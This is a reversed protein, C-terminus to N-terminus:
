SELEGGATTLLERMAGLVHAQADLLSLGEVTCGAAYRHGGGGHSEAFTCVDINGASRLSVKTRMEDVPFFFLGVEVGRIRLLYNVVEFADRPVIGLRRLTARDTSSWALRGACELQLAALSNGLVQLKGLPQACHLERFIKAPEVGTELLSAVMRHVRPTTSEYQFSGTDNVIGVYLPEALERTMAAGMSRLLDWVIECSSSAGEVILAQDFLDNKYRHHDILLKRAPSARVVEEMRGLRKAGGLDTAVITDADMLLRGHLDPDFVHFEGRQWLFRLNQPAASCNIFEARQGRARLARLIALAAGLGDGDPTIHTTLITRRSGALTRLLEEAQERGTEM